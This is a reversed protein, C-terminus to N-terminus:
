DDVGDLEELTEAWGKRPRDSWYLPARFITELNAGYCMGYQNRNLLALALRRRLVSLCHHCWADTYDMDLRTGCGQCVWM